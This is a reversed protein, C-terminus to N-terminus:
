RREMSGTAASNAAGCARSMHIAQGFGLHQAGGVQRALAFAGAELQQPSQKEEVIQRIGCRLPEPRMM